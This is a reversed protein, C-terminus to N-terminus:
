RSVQTPVLTSLLTTTAPDPAGPKGLAKKIARKASRTDAPYSREGEPGRLFTLNLDGPRSPWVLTLGSVKIGPLREALRDVSMGISSKDAWPIKKFGRRSTGGLTWYFNPQWVKADIVLVSKATVVVHDMNATEGNKGRGGPVWLDHYCWVDDDNKFMRALYRATNLEGRRGASVRDAAYRTGRAADLTGAPIGFEMM